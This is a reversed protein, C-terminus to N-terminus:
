CHFFERGAEMKIFVFFFFIYIKNFDRKAVIQYIKKVEQMIMQNLEDLRLFSLQFM